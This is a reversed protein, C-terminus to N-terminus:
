LVSTDYKLSLTKTIRSSANHLKMKIQKGSDFEIYLFSGTDSISLSTPTGFADPSYRITEIEQKRQDWKLIVKDPDFDLLFCTYRALYEPARELWQKTLANVDRYWATKEEFAIDAFGPRHRWMEYYRDNIQKYQQRFLAADEDALALQLYLKNPRQHKISANNHKVSLKIIPRERTQVIIDATDGKAGAGDANLKFFTDIPCPNEQHRYRSLLSDITADLKQQKLHAAEANENFARYSIELRRLKEESKNDIPLIRRDILSKCVLYELANGVARCKAAM